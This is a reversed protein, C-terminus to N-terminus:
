AATAPPPSGGTAPPTLGCFPFCAQRPPMLPWSTVVTHRSLGHASEILLLRDPFWEFPRKFQASAGTGRGLTIHARLGSERHLPTMDCAALLQVVARYFEQIENQRGLATLAAYGDASRVKGLRIPVSSLAHGAFAAKLRAPLGCDREPREAVVCLTLHALDERLNQRLERALAILRQLLDRPPQFGLFYTYSDAQRM